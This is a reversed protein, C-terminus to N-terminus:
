ESKELDKESEKQKQLYEFWVINNDKFEQAIMLMFQIIENWNNLMLWVNKAKFFQGISEPTYSGASGHNMEPERNSDMVSNNLYVTLNSAWCSKYKPFFREEDIESYEEFPKNIDQHYIEVSQEGLRFATLPHFGKSMLFDYFKKRTIRNPDKM